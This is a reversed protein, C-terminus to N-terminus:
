SSVLCPGSPLDVIGTHAIFNTHNLLLQDSTLIDLTGPSFDELTQNLMNYNLNFVDTGTQNLYIVFNLHYSGLESENFNNDIYQQNLDQVFYYTDDWNSWSYDTVNLSGEATNINANIRAILEQAERSETKQIDNNVYYELALQSLLVM